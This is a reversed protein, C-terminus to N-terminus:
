QQAQVTAGIHAPHLRVAESFADSAASEDGRGLYGLGMLYYANARRGAEFGEGGFKAFFDPADGRELSRQGAAVLEDYIRRAEEDRGLKQLARGQLYRGAQPLDDAGAAKEFAARAEGQNGLAQQALGVYYNAEGERRGVAVELNKPYELAAQFDRLAARAQGGELTKQGRLLHADVWLDHIGEAGEARRFHQTEMRTIAQDYRGAQVLLGTERALAADHQLIAKEHREIRSLRKAPQEAAWEAYLDAEYYYRPDDQRLALAREMSALARDADNRAYAYGFALNRHAAALAPDLSAAQEWEAIATEPQHDYYLNGLYLHARADKPDAALAARLARATEFRFPFVYETPLSAARKWDAAAALQEGQLAAYYGRLYYLTPDGSMESESAALSLVERADDYLGANGYDTALEAYNQVEGRMLPLLAALDGGLLAMEYRGPFYLPDEAVLGEAIARAEDTRGAHRLLAAKLHLAALNRTNASLAEGLHGLAREYDGRRADIRALLTHAPAYWAHDWAARSLLDYAEDLQGQELKTLGLYYLPKTDEARTHRQTVREVARRLHDEAEQLMGRKLYLLGLHTNAPAYGPDRRLAEEFYPYPSYGPNHFQDLRLGALYLEEISEVAAPPPPPKVADPMPQDERRVPEYAILAEGAATRVVVRVGEPSVGTPLAIDAEFPHAPDVDIIQEHVVRDGDLLTLVAGAQRETTNLGVRVRGGQLADLSIAADLNANEVAGLGRLPFFNLTASKRVFPDAWSYDPQNDSYAGAMIELYPGNTDTLLDYWLKAHPGTGWNWLKKGPAVNHDAVIALGAEQGHDYGAVFDDQYNWAFFSVGEPHNKWWSVDVGETYDVGLYRQHSIPWQSFQTKSHYTAYQTSPPFVVQYDANAHVATNAWMLLSNSLPTRNYLRMEAELVSRGPRLTMAVVWHTRNRRETEGIWITKSGDANEKLLYDVPLDSTARHHHPINWEVGGSTWAGLMGIFAPKVVENHYIVEYDNTKDQMMYLKGGLEPLVCIRIYENELFLGTYTKEVLDDTLRDHMPYPYVRGQAGQYARGTYFVPNVEAEGTAYTPITIAKEYVQVREQASAAPALAAPILLLSFLSLVLRGPTFQFLTFAQM